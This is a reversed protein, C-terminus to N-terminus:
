PIRLPDGLAIVNEKEKKTLRHNWLSSKGHGMSAPFKDALFFDFSILM